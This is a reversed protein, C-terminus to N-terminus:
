NEYNLSTLTNGMISIMLKQEEESFHEKWSGPTASRFFKGSGKEKTPIKKFDYKDIIKAIGNDNIEIKLFQYIRKLENFTDERLNEYKVMIRLDTSHKNYVSLVLDTIRKWTKSHREIEINRKRQSDLLVKSLSKNWSNPKHADILSDVVDRGDRLLFILKSNPFCELLIDSGESGNPEKIILNKNNKIRSNAFTLIFKKLEPLWNKKQSESFIYDTRKFDSKMIRFHVGLYPENWIINEPIKLLQTGLWTSGSRPAGFIWVM